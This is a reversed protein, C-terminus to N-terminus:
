GSPPVALHRSFLASRAMTSLRRVTGRRHRRLHAVGEISLSTFEAGDGANRDKIHFPMTGADARGGTLERAQRTFYTNEDVDDTDLDDDSEAVGSENVHVYGAPLDVVVEWIGEM